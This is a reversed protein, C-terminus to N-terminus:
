LAAHRPQRHSESRVPHVLNFNPVHGTGAHHGFWALIADADHTGSQLICNGLSTGRQMSSSSTIRSAGPLQAQLLCKLPPSTIAATTTSVAEHSLGITHGLEHFLTGAIVTARKSMDQNPATAWLGLTVASDAGGLDSYGSISTVTGSTIGIVPEPLTSNPYNWNTVGSPTPIIITRSDPCSSTSYVCRSHLTRCEKYAPSLSAVRVITSPRGQAGRDTTVITTTSGAVATISTLTAYRSNWAPIALSHGFLVYHYSDSRGLLPASLLRWRRRVTLLSTARGSKQSSSATREM